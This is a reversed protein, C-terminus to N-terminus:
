GRSAATASGLAFTLPVVLFFNVGMTRATEQDEAVARMALGFRTRNIIHHVVAIILLGAVMLILGDYRVFVGGVTAGSPLLAPFRQSNTGNPFFLRIAERIVTGVMMTMLLLNLPPATRLPLILLRSIGAGLLAALGVATSVAALIQVGVPLGAAAAATAAVLAGFAGFTMVDGHSFKIVNMVGFFITFGMAVLGYITGQMLGNLVYQGIASM